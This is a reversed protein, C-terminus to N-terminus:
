SKVFYFSYIIPDMKAIIGNLIKFDVVHECIVKDNRWLIDLEQSVSYFMLIIM